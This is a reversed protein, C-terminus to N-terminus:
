DAKKNQFSQGSKPIIRAIIQLEMNLHFKVKNKSSVALENELFTRWQALDDKDSNNKL